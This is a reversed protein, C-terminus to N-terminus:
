LVLVFLFSDDSVKLFGIYKDSVKNPTVGDEMLFREPRFEHGDKFVPSHALVQHIEGLVHTDAPIKVGRVSTDRVTRHVVNMPLINAKRQLEQIAANTYPMKQRDSSTPKGDPGVVRLIEERIKEPSLKAKLSAGDELTDVNTIGSKM